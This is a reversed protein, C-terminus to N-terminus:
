PIRLECSTISTETPDVFYYDKTGSSCLVKDLGDGDRAYLKDDGSSGSLYDTDGPERDSLTDNGFM